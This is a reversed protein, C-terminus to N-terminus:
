RRSGELRAKDEPGGWPKGQWMPADGDVSQDMAHQAAKQARVRREQADQIAEPSGTEYAHFTMVDAALDIGLAFLSRAYPTM